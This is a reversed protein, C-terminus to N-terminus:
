HRRIIANAVHTEILLQRDPRLTIERTFFRLALEDHMPIIVVPVWRPAHTRLHACHEIAAHIQAAATADRVEIRHSILRPLIAIRRRYPRPDGAVRESIALAKPVTMLKGINLHAFVRAKDPGALSSRDDIERIGTQTDRSNMRVVRTSLVHVRNVPM